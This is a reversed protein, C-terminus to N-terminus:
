GLVHSGSGIIGTCSFRVRNVWIRSGSGIRGTCVIVQGLLGLVCAFRIWNAMYVRFGSGILGTCM